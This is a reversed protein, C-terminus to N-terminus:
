PAFSLRGPVYAGVSGEFEGVYAASIAGSGNRVVDYIAVNYRAPGRTELLSWPVIVLVRGDRQAVSLLTDPHEVDWGGGDIRWFAVPGPYRAEASVLRDWEGVYDDELTAGSDIFVQFTWGGEHAPDFPKDHYISFRMGAATVQAAVSVTSTPSTISHCNTLTAAVLLLALLRM